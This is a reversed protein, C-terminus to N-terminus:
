PRVFTVPMQAPKHNLQVDTRTVVKGGTRECTHTFTVTDKKGGDNWDIVIERGSLATAGDFDGFLMLYNTTGVPAYRTLGTFSVKSEPTDPHPKETAVTDLRYVNGEYEATVSDRVINGATKSNLLNQGDESVVRMQINYDAVGWDPTDPTLNDDGGCATFLAAAAVLLTAACATMKSYDTM